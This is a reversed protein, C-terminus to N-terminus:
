SRRRAEIVDNLPILFRHLDYWAIYYREGLGRLVMEVPKLSKYATQLRKTDDDWDGTKHYKEMVEKAISANTELKTLYSTV